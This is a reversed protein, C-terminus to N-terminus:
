GGWQRLSPLMSGRLPICKRVRIRVSLTGTSVLLNNRQQGMRQEVIDITNHLPERGRAAQEQAGSGEEHRDAEGRRSAYTKHVCVHPHSSHKTMHPTDKRTHQARGPETESGPERAHTGQMGGERKRETGEKKGERKRKTHSRQKRGGPSTFYQMAM